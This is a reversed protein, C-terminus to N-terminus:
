AIATGPLPSAATTVALMGRAKAPAPRAAVASATARTARASPADAHRRHAGGSRRANSRSAVTIPNIGSRARQGACSRSRRRRSIRALPPTLSARYRASSSPWPRRRSLRCASARSAGAGQSEKSRAALIRRRIRSRALTLSHGLAGDIGPHEVREVVAVHVDDLAAQRDEVLHDHGHHGVRGLLSRFLTTYPFLTSRPPRRIMLFFFFIVQSFLLSDLSPRTCMLHHM